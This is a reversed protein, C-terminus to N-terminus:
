EVLHRVAAVESKLYHLAHRVVTMDDVYGIVPISDPIMDVPCVVYALAAAALATKTRSEGSGKSAIHWLAKVNLQLESCQDRLTSMFTSVSMEAHDLKKSDVEHYKVYRDVHLRYQALGHVTYLGAQAVTVMEVLGGVVGGARIRACARAGMALSAALQLKSLLLSLAVAEGAHTLWPPLAVVPDGSLVFRYHQVTRLTDLWKSFNEDGVRPTAFTMLRISVDPLIDHLHAAALVALAGGFSHGCFIITNFNFNLGLIHLQDKVRRKCSLWADLFGKHVRGARDFPTSCCKACHLMDKTSTTGKFAFYVKGDVGQGIFFKIGDNTSTKPAIVQVFLKRKQANNLNNEYTLEALELAAKM